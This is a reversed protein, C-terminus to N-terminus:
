FRIIFNQKAQEQRFFIIGISYLDISVTVLKHNIIENWAEKMESSWYIDDFVFIADNNIKALCQEFYNLTPKKRHNGDFFVFDLKQFRNLVDPLVDDFNGVFLELKSCDFRKFNDSAIKAVSASGEISILKGNHNAEQLYLTTLGLSTGLELRENCQYFNIIRYLLQAYKKPKASNLILEKVSTQKMKRGGAGFDEMEVKQNITYLQERLEEIEAFSYYQGEDLLVKM